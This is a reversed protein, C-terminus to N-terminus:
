WERERERKRHEHPDTPHDRPDDILKNLRHEFEAETIEGEAYRRKLTEVAAEESHSGVGQRNRDENYAGGLFGGLAGLGATIATFFLYIPIILMGAGIFEPGAAMGFFWIMMLLLPFLVIPIIGGAVGGVKAGEQTDASSLYAAAAGGILPAVLNAGPIVTAVLTVGIASGVATWFGYKM